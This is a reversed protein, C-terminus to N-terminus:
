ADGGVLNAIDTIYEGLASELLNYVAKASPIEDDTSSTNITTQKEVCKNKINIRGTFTIPSKSVIPENVDDKHCCIRIAKLGATSLNDPITMISINDTNREYEIFFDASIVLGYNLSQYSQNDYYYIIKNEKNSNDVAMGTFYLTDGPKCEIYGTTIYDDDVSLVNKKSLVRGEMYGYENLEEGENCTSNPLINNQYTYERCFYDDMMVLEKLSTEKNFIPKGEESKRFYKTVPEQLISMTDFNAPTNTYIIDRIDYEDMEYYNFDDLILGYCDGDLRIHQNEGGAIWKTNKEYWDWVRSGNLNANVCNNLYIGYKAYKNNYISLRPQISTSIYAHNCHNLYVGCECGDIIGNIKMDNTWAWNDYDKGDEDQAIQYNNTGYVGYKFAGAIRLGSFELGWIFSSCGSNEGRYGEIFIATGNCDGNISRHLGVKNNPISEEENQVIPKTINIDKLYRGPKWQPDYNDFPDITDFTSVKDHNRTTAYIVIGNFDYPVRITAHNGVLSSLMNLTICKKAAIIDTDSWLDLGVDQDDNSNVGTSNVMESFDLVADQALELECNDGVVLEGTIKYTGGPVYVRRNNELANVFATTDNHDGDGYAGYSKVSAGLNAINLKEKVTLHVHNSIKRIQLNADIQPATILTATFFGDNEGCEMNFNSNNICTFLMGNLYFKYIGNDNEVFLTTDVPTVGEYDFLDTVSLTGCEHKVGETTMYSIVFRNLKTSYSDTFTETDPYLVVSFGKVGDVMTSDYLGNVIKVENEERVANNYNIYRCDNPIIGNGLSKDTWTFAICGNYENNDFFTTDVKFTCSLYKGIKIGGTPNETSVSDNGTYEISVGTYYNGFNAVATANIDEITESLVDSEVNTIVPNENHNDYCYSKVKFYPSVYKQCM